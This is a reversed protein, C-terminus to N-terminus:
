CRGRGEKLLGDAVTALDRWPYPKAVAADAEGACYCDGSAALIPIHSTVPDGRLHRILEVGGMVPMMM